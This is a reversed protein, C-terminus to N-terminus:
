TPAGQLADPDAHGKIAVIYYDRGSARCLGAIDAPLQGSGAVIGLKDAM